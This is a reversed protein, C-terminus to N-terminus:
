SEDLTFSLNFSLPCHLRLRALFLWLRNSQNQLYNAVSLNRKLMAIRVQRRESFFPVFFPFHLVVALEVLCLLPHLSLLHLLVTCALVKSFVLLPSPLTWPLVFHCSVRCTHENDARGRKFLRIFRRAHPCWYNVLDTYPM